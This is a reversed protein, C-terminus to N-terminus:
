PHATSGPSLMRQVCANGEKNQGPSAKQQIGPQAEHDSNGQVDTRPQVRGPFLLHKSFGM